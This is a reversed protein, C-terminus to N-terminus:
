RHASEWRDYLAFLTERINGACAAFCESVIQPAVCVADDGVLRRVVVQTAALSPATSFLTPFGVDRHATVLLGWGLRRCHAKVHFRSLVSLQEYGDIVILNAAASKAQGTWDAPLRRAGDHLAVSWARRAARALPESLTALLTSKGSGHPGVIQGRWGAEALREVLGEANHPPDFLYPIAGPRVFRTSFPNSRPAHECSDKV